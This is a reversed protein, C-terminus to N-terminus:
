QTLCVSSDERENTRVRKRNTEFVCILVRICVCLLATHHPVAPFGPPKDARGSNLRGILVLRENLAVCVPLLLQFPVLSNILVQESEVFMLVAISWYMWVCVFLFQRVRCLVTIKYCYYCIAGSFYKWSSLQFIIRPRRWHLTKAMLIKIFSNNKCNNLVDSTGKYLNCSNWM